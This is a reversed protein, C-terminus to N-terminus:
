VHQLRQVVENRHFWGVKHAVWSPKLANEVDDALHM